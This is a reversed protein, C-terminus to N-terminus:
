LLCPHSIFDIFTDDARTPGFTQTISLIPCLGLVRMNHKNKGIGIEREGKAPFPSFVNNVCGLTGQSSVSLAVSQEQIGWIEVDGLFKYWNNVDGQRHYKTETAQYQIERLHELPDTLFLSVFGTTTRHLIGPFLTNVKWRRLPYIAPNPFLHPCISEPRSHKKLTDVSHSPLLSCQGM